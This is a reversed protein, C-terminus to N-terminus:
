SKALILFLQSSYCGRGRCMKNQTRGPKVRYFKADSVTM